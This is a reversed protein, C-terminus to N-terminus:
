CHTKRQNVSLLEKVASCGAEVSSIRNLLLSKEIQSFDEGVVPPPGM